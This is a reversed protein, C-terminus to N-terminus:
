KTGGEIQALREPSSQLSCVHAAERRPRLGDAGWNGVKPRTRMFSITSSLRVAREVTLDELGVFRMWGDMGDCYIVDCPHMSWLAQLQLVGYAAHQVDDIQLPLQDLPKGALKVLYHALRGVNAEYSWLTALEPPSAVHAAM